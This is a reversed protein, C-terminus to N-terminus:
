RKIFKTSVGTIQGKREAEVYAKDNVVITELATKTDVKFSYFKHMKKSGQYDIADDDPPVYDDFLVSGDNKYLKVQLSRHDKLGGIEIIYDKYNETDPWFENIKPYYRGELGSSSVADEYYENYDEYSYTNDQNNFNISENNALMIIGCVILVSLAVMASVCIILLKRLKNKNNKESKLNTKKLTNNLTTKSTGDSKSPAFASNETNMHVSHMEVSKDFNKDEINDSAKKFGKAM